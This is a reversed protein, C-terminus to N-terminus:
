KRSEHVGDNRSSAMKSFEAITVATVANFLCIWDSAGSSLLAVKGPRTVTVLEFAAAGTSVITLALTLAFPM